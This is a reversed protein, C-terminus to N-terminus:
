SIGDKKMKYDLERSKLERDAQRDARDAQKDAYQMYSGFGGGIASGANAYQGATRDGQDQYFRSQQQGQGAKANALDFQRDFYAGKERNQRELEKNYLDINANAIRQRNEMNAIQAANMRDVNRQQRGAANNFLFRNREDLANAKTQAVDFDQSRMNGALTAQDRTGQSLRRGIEASLRMSDAAAQNAASQNQGIRSRLEAGGGGQGRAAFENILQAQRSRNAQEIDQMMQFQDAREQPTMGVQARMGILRLAEEQADRLAPDEEIQAVQSQALFIDEEVEPTIDGIAAYERYIIEKSLDPPLGIKELEKFAQEMAKRAAKRDGSAAANGMLGGVIPAAITAAALLSM